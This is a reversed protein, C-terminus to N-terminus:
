NGSNLYKNSVMVTPKLPPNLIDLTLIYSFNPALDSSVAEVSGIYLNEEIQHCIDSM